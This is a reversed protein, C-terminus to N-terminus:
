KKTENVEEFDADVVDDDQGAPGAQGQPGAGPEGSEQAAQQYM